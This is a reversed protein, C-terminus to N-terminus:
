FTCYNQFRYFLLWSKVLLICYGVRQELLSLSCVACQLLRLQAQALCLVAYLVFVNAFRRQFNLILFSDLCTACRVVCFVNAFIFPEFGFMSLAFLFLFCSDKSFSCSATVGSFLFCLRVRIQVLFWCEVCFARVLRLDCFKASFAPPFVQFPPASLPLV